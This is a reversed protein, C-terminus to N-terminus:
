CITPIKLLAYLMKAERLTPRSLIRIFASLDLNIINLERVIRNSEAENKVYEM